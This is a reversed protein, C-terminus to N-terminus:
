SVVIEGDVTPPELQPVRAADLEQELTNLLDLPVVGLVHAKAAIRAVVAALQSRADLGLLQWRRAMLREVQKAAEIHGAVAKDWLANQLKDLRELELARWQETSLTQERHLEALSERLDDMIQTRSVGLKESIQRYSMGTARLELAAQRRRAAKIHRADSRKGHYM